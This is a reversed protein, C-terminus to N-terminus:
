PMVISFRETKTLWTRGNWIARQRYTVAESRNGTPGPLSRMAGGDVVRASKDRIAALVDERTAAVGKRFEVKFPRAEVQPVATTIPRNQWAWLPYGGNILGAREVGTWRLFFWVRAADLQRKADYVFVSTKQDIGLSAVWDEWFKRDELGGPQSVRTELARMDIWVAGPIHGQEYDTRPRCDILRLTPDNLRKELDAFTLLQARSGTRATSTPKEQAHVAVLPLVSGIFVVVAFAVAVRFSSRLM